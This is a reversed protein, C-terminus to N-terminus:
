HRLCEPKYQRDGNDDIVYPPNCNPASSAAQTPAPNPTPSRNQIPIRTPTSNPHPTSTSHPTPTSNPIATSNPTPAPTLPPTQSPTAPVSEPLAALSTPTAVPLTQVGSALARALGDGAAQSSDRADKRHVGLLAAGAIASAALLVGGVALRITRSRARFGGATARELAPLTGGSVQTGGVPPSVPVALANRSLGAAQLIGSIREVSAKARPPGFPLLALSLEGVNRYRRTRDKELCRRVVADLGSPTDPRFSRLLPPSDTAVKMVLETVTDGHFPPHGVILEFLIVGLSWIDTTSDVDRTSRMQEPSM